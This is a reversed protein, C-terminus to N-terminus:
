RPLLGSDCSMQNISGVAGLPSWISHILSLTNYFQPQRGVQAKPQFEGVSSYASGLSPPLLTAASSDSNSSSSSANSLTSTPRNHYSGVNLFLNQSRPLSLSQSGFESFGSPLFRSAPTMFSEADDSYSHTSLYECDGSATMAPSISCAVLNTKLNLYSAIQQAVIEGCVSLVVCEKVTQIPHVFAGGFDRLLGGIFQSQQATPSAHLQPLGSIWITYLPQPRFLASQTAVKRLNNIAPTKGVTQLWNLPAYTAFQSLQSLLVSALSPDGFSVFSSDSSLFLRKWNCNMLSLVHGLGEDLPCTRCRGAASVPSHHVQVTLYDVLQESQQVTPASEVNFRRTYNTVINTTTNMEELALKAAGANQFYVLYSSHDLSTVREFKPYCMFLETVDALTADSPFVAVHLIRRPSNVSPRTLYPEYGKEHQARMLSERNILEVAYQADCLARFCVYFLGEAHFDVKLFGPLSCLLQKLAVMPRDAKFVKVVHGKLRANGNGTGSSGFPQRTSGLSDGKLSQGDRWKQGNKQSLASPKQPRSQMTQVAPLLACRDRGSQPEQARVNAGHTVGGPVRGHNGGVNLARSQFEVPLCLVCNQIEFAWSTASQVNDFVCILCKDGHAGVSPLCQVCSNYSLFLQQLAEPTYSSAVDEPLTVLVVRSTGNYPPTPHQAASAFAESFSSPIQFRANLTDRADAALDCSRFSLLHGGKVLVWKQLGVLVMVLTRLRNLELCESAIFLLSTKEDAMALSNKKEKESEGGGKQDDSSRFFSISAHSLTKLSEKKFFLSFLFDRGSRM